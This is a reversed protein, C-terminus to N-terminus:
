HSARSYVNRLHERMEDPTDGGQLDAIGKIIMKHRLDYDRMLIEMRTELLPMILDFETRDQALYLATKLLEDKEREADSQLADLGNRLVKEALAVLQKRRDDLAPIKVKRDDSGTAYIASLKADVVMPSDGNFIALIGQITLRHRTEEYYSISRWRTELIDTILGSDTDDVVLRVGLRLQPEEIYEILQKLSFFYGGRTMDVLEAFLEAIEEFSLRAFPRGLKKLLGPSPNVPTWRFFTGPPWGIFGSEALRRAELVIRQRAKEETAEQEPTLHEMKLTFYSRMRESMRSLFKEKLEGSAGKFAIILEKQKIQGLLRQLEGDTYRILDEFRVEEGAADGQEQPWAVAASLVVGAVVRILLGAMRERKLCLVSTASNM